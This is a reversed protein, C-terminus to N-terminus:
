GQQLEGVMRDFRRGYRFSIGFMLLFSLVLSFLNIGKQITFLPNSLKDTRRFTAGLPLKISAFSQQNIRETSRILIVLEKHPLVKAVEIATVGRTISRTRIETNQNNSEITLPASEISFEANEMAYGSYNDIILAYEFGDRSASLETFQLNARGVFFYDFLTTGLWVALAIAASQIIGKVLSSTNTQESSAMIMKGSRFPLARAATTLSRCVG